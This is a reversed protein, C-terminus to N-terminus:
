ATCQGIEVSPDAISLKLTKLTTDDSLELGILIPVMYRDERYTPALDRISVNDQFASVLLEPATTGEIQCDFLDLQRLTTSSRVLSALAEASCRVTRLTLARISPNLSVAQLLGDFRGGPLSLRDAGLWQVEELEKRHEINHWLPDMNKIENENPLFYQTPVADLKHVFTNERLAETLTAMRVTATAWDLLLNVSTVQSDNRRVADWDAM